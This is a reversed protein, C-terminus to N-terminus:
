SFTDFESPVVMASIARPASSCYRSTGRTSCRRPTRTGSERWSVAFRVVPISRPICTSSNGTPNDFVSQAVAAPTVTASTSSLGTKTITAQGTPVAVDSGGDVPSRRRRGLEPRRACHSYACRNVDYKSPFGTINVVFDYTAGTINNATDRTVTMTLQMTGSTWADANTIAPVENSPLLIATFRRVNPNSSPSTPSDDFSSGFVLVLALLAFRKMHVGGFFPDGDTCHSSWYLLVPNVLRLRAHMKSNVYANVHPSHLVSDPLGSDSAVTWLGRLLRLGIWAEFFLDFQSLFDSPIMNFRRHMERSSRTASSPQARPGAPPGALRRLRGRMTNAADSRPGANACITGCNSRFVRVSTVSTSPEVPMSAWCIRFPAGASTNKAAFSLKM